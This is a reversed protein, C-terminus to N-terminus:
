QTEKVKVTDRDGCHGCQSGETSTIETLADDIKGCSPCHRLINAKGGLKAFHEVEDFEFEEGSDEGKGVLKISGDPKRRAPLNDIWTFCHFDPLFTVNAPIVLWGAMVLRIIRQGSITGKWQEGANLESQLIELKDVAPNSPNTLWFQIYKTEAASTLDFVADDTLVFENGQVDVFTGARVTIQMDGTQEVLIDSDIKTAGRRQLGRHIRSRIAM